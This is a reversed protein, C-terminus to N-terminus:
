SSRIIKLVNQLCDLFHLFFHPVPVGGKYKGIQICLFVSYHCFILSYIMLSLRVEHMTEKHWRLRSPDSASYNCLNCQRRLPPPPHMRKVHTRLQLLTAAYFSCRACSFNHTPLIAGHDLIMSRRPYNVPISAPHPTQHQGIQPPMANISLKSVHTTSQPHKLLPSEKVLANSESTPSCKKVTAHFGEDTLARKVTGGNISKGCSKEQAILPNEGAAATQAPSHEQVVHSDEEVVDDECEMKVGFDHIIVM